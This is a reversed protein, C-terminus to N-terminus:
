LVANETLFSLILDAVLENGTENLHDDRSLYLEEDRRSRFVPLLDLCHVELERCLDTLLAQPKAEELSREDLEFGLGRHFEFLSRNVQISRPFVAVVLQAGVERCEREIDQILERVKFWARMNEDTEMLVNDLLHRPRAAALRLLWPNIERRKAAEILEESVGTAAVLDFDFFVSSVRQVRRLLYQYSYLNRFFRPSSNYNIGLGPDDTTDDRGVFRPHHQVNTLDNGVYYGLLVAHPRFSRGNARVEDLYEFPGTGSVSVNRVAVGRASLEDALRKGLTKSPRMFSDGVILLRRGAEEISAQRGYREFLPNEVVGLRLAAEFGVGVVLLAISVTAVTFFAKKWLAKRRGRAVPDKKSAM